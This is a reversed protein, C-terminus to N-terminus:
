HRKRKRYSARKTIFMSGVTIVIALSLGVGVILAYMQSSLFPVQSGYPVILPYRDTNNADIIYPADGIGDGNADTGNYNSWYNGEKDNDWFNTQFLTDIRASLTNNIFNNNYITNDKTPISNNEQLWIGVSANKVTNEYVTNNIGSLGIGIGSFNEIVNDYISCYSGGINIGEVGNILFNKSITTSNSGEEIVNQVNVFNNGLIVNYIGYNINIGTAANTINNELIKNSSPESFGQFNTVYIASTINSISNQKITTNASNIYIGTSGIDTLNNGNIIINSSNQIFIGQWFQEFNLNTITINNRDQIIIGQYAYEYDNFFGWLVHGAGDIIINDRQIEITYNVISETFTYINGNRSIPVTSPNVTGEASIHIYPLPTPTGVHYSTDSSPPLTLFSSPVQSPFLYYSISVLAFTILLACIAAMAM